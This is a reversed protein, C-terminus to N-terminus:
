LLNFIDQYPVTGYTNQILVFRIFFLVLIVSIASYVLHRIRADKIVSGMNPVLTIYIPIFLFLLISPTPLKAIMAVVLCACYHLNIVTNFKYFEAKPVQLYVFCVFCMMMIVVLALLKSFSGNDFQGGFYESYLGLKDSIFIIGQRIYGSLLFVFIMTLTMYFPNIKIKKFIYFFVFLICASHFLTAIGIFVLFLIPRKEKIYKLAYLVIAVGISQRMGSLSFTFFGGMMFILISLYVNTSQDKIYKFVFFVILFNTIAFIYQYTRGQGLWYGAWIVVKYLLEVKVVQHGLVAPIQYSSYTTYDIGVNYRIMGPICIILFSLTFFLYKEIKATMNNEIGDVIRIKEISTYLYAFFMSFITMYIYIM